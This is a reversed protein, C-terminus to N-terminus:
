RVLEGRRLREGLNMLRGVQEPTASHAGYWVPEFLSVGLRFAALCDPRAHARRELEGGYELNSKARAVRVFNQAALWALLSLFSARLAGRYEGQGALEAAMRAWEDDPLDTALTNEDDIAPKAEAMPVAAMPALDPQNRRHRWYFFAALCALLALLALLTMDVDFAGMKSGAETGGSSGLIWRGLWDGIRRWMESLWDAWKLITRSVGDFFTALVGTKPLDKAGPLRWAYSKDKFVQDIQGDLQGVPIQSTQAEQSVSTAPTEQASAANGLLLAALGALLLAGASLSRTRRLAVRLDEGTHAAESRFCRLVFAAKVVPDLLLYVMGAVAVLTSTDSWIGGNEILPTAVGLLTKLLWPGMTMAALVNTALIIPLPSLPFFLALAMGQLLTVGIMLGGPLVTRVLPAALFVLAAMFIMISPSIAWVILFSQRPQEVARQWADHSLRRSRMDGARDLATLNQYYAHVTGYPILALLALPLLLLGFPQLFAQRAALRLWHRTEMGSRDLLRDWLLM